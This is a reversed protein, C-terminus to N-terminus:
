SYLDVTMRIPYVGHTETEFYVPWNADKCPTDSTTPELNKEFVKYLGFDSPKMCAEGCHGHKLDISVYKAM